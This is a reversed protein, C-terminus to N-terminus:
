TAKEVKKPPPPNQYIATVELNGLHKKGWLNKKVSLLPPAFLVFPGSGSIGPSPPLGQGDRGPAEKNSGFGPTTQGALDTEGMGATSCSPM